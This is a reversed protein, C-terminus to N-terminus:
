IATLSFFSTLTVPMFTWTSSTVACPTDSDRETDEQKVCSVPSCYHNEALPGSVFVSFTPSFNGTPVATALSESVADRKSSSSINPM